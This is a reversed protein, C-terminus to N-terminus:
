KGPITVSSPSVAQLADAQIAELFNPPSQRVGKRRLVWRAQDELDLILSQDLSVDFMWGEWAAELSSGKLGARRGYIDRAEDPNRKIYNTARILARLFKRVARGQAQAWEPRVVVTWTMTYLSPDHLIVANTGLNDATMTLYPRWTAVADIEGNDLAKSVTAPELDVLEVDAPNIHLTTLYVHLFFDATTWPVRGVRRHVLNQPEWLGHDKRAVIGNAHSNAGVTAIINVSKGDVVAKAFPTDGVTAFNANGQLMETMAQQGSTHLSMTVSLGEEEFYGAEEAVFIPASGGLTSVALAVKDVTRSEPSAREQCGLLLFAFAAVPIAVAIRCFSKRPRPMQTANLGHLKRAKSVQTLDRLVGPKPIHHRRRSM